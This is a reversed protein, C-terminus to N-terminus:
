RNIDFFESIEITSKKITVFAEIKNFITIIEAPIFTSNISGIKLNGSEFKLNLQSTMNLLTFLIDEVADAVIFDSYWLKKDENIGIYVKTQFCFVLVEFSTTTSVNNLFLLHASPISNVNFNASMYENLWIPTASILQVQFLKCYNSNLTLSDPLNGYMREDYANTLSDDFVSSPLVLHRYGVNIHEFDPSHLFSSNTKEKLFSKVEEQMLEKTNSRIEHVFCGESSKLTIQSEEYIIISKEM